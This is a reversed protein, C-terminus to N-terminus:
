AERMNKMSNLINSNSDRSGQTQVHPAQAKEQEARNSTYTNKHTPLQRHLSAWHAWLGTCAAGQRSNRHEPWPPGQLAGKGLSQWAHEERLPIHLQHPWDKALAELKYKGSEKRRGQPILRLCIVQSAIAARLPSSGAMHKVGKGDQISQNFEQAKRHKGKKGSFCLLISRESLPVM